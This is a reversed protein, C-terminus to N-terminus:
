HAAMSGRRFCNEVLTLRVVAAGGESPADFVDTLQDGDQPETHVLVNLEDEALCPLASRGTTSDTGFGDSDERQSEQHRNLHPQVADSAVAWLRGWRM